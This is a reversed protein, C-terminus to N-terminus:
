MEKSTRPTEPTPKRLVHLKEQDVLWYPEFDPDGSILYEWYKAGTDDIIDSANYLIDRVGYGAGM